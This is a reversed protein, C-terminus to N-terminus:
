KGRSPSTWIPANPRPQGPAISPRLTPRAAPKAQQTPQVPQEPTQSNGNGSQARSSALAQERMKRKEDETLEQQTEISPSQANMNSAATIIANTLAGKTLTDGFKTTRVSNAQDTTEAQQKDAEENSREMMRDAATKIPSTEAM